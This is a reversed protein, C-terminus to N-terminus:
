PLLLRVAVAVLLQILNKQVAVSIDFDTALFYKM